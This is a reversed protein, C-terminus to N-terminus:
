VAPRHIPKQEAHSSSAGVLFRLVECQICVNPWSLSKLELKADGATNDDFITLLSKVEVSNSLFIKFNQALPLSLLNFGKKKKTHQCQMRYMHSVYFEVITM